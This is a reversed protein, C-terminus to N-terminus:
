ARFRGCCLRVHKQPLLEMIPHRGVSGTRSPSRGYECHPQRMTALLAYMFRSMVPEELRLSRMRSPGPPVFAGVAAMRGTCLIRSAPRRCPRCRCNFRQRALRLPAEPKRANEKRPVARPPRPLNPPAAAIRQWRHNRLLRGPETSSRARLELAWPAIQVHRSSSAM